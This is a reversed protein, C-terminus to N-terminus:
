SPRFRVLHHASLPEPDSFGSALALLRLAGWSWLRMPEDRDDMPGDRRADEEARLAVVSDGRSWVLRLDGEESLGEQWNGQAVEDWVGDHAHDIYVAGGPALVGRLRALLGACARVDHFLALTNGLILVVDAPGAPHELEADSELVDCVRTRVPPDLDSTAGEVGALWAPETDIALVDCGREALPIAVRGLGAGIDIVRVGTPILAVLGSIQREHEEPELPMSADVSDGSM